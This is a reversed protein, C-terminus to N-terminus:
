YCASSAFGLIRRGGQRQPHIPFHCKKSAYVKRCIGAPAREEILWCVMAHHGVEASRGNGAVKGGAGGLIHQNRDKVVCKTWSANWLIKHSCPSNCNYCFWGARSSFIEILLNYQVSAVTKHERWGSVRQLRARWWGIEWTQMWLLFLCIQWVWRLQSRFRKFSGNIM